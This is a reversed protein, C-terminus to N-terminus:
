GSGHVFYWYINYGSRTGAPVQVRAWVGVSCFGTNAWPLLVTQDLYLNAPLTKRCYDEDEERCASDLICIVAHSAWDVDRVASVEESLLIGDGAAEAQDCTNQQQKSSECFPCLGDLTLCLVCPAM